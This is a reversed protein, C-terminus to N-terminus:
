SVGGPDDRKELFIRYIKDKAIEPHGPNGPPFQKPRDLFLKGMNRNQKHTSVPRLIGSLLKEKLSTPLIYLFRNSRLLDVM